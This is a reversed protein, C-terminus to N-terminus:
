MSAVVGGPYRDFVAPDYLPVLHDAVAKARANTALAEYMNENIGLLRNDEVNAYHFFSDSLVVTGAHSDVEVAISARHHAGSFWTRIGPAIEDEDELLHVRDWANTVLHVLVDPAISTARDDHPHDHTTHFHVWGRKSLHLRANRFLPIGATTYLQFPTVVVDTVDDPAIGLDALQATITEYPERRFEGREGFIGTWRANLATLDDPAGTNVLATIGDGRVVAVNFSLEFWRDWDSMWFLEPGPIETRGVPRVEVSFAM